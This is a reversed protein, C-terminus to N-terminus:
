RYAGRLHEPLLEAIKSMVIGAAVKDKEDPSLHAPVSLGYGPGFRLCFAGDAEYAAVPVFRSGRGALLLLFRGAGPPPEALSGDASDRGEPALGLVFDRGAKAEELVSRVARARAEVDKERPPMPPMSTFGYVRALRRLLWRTAASKLPEYWKGPATWENTMIWHMEAPVTAAIGLALWQAGFGPRGYHNVTVACPGRGPLNEAGILKLPPELRAVCALADERLSRPRLLLTDLAVQLFLLPPYTYRPPM